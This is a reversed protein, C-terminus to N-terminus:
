GSSKLARQEALTILREASGMPVDVGGMMM